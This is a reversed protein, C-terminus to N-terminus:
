RGFFSSKSPAQPAQPLPTGGPTGRQASGGSPPPTPEPPVQYTQAQPASSPLSTDRSPAAQAAERLQQEIFEKNLRLERLSPEFDNEWRTTPDAPDDPIDFDDAEEFTEHLQNLATLNAIRIQDRMQELLSPPRKLSSAPQMPNPDLIERGYLPHKKDTIHRLAHLDVKPYTGQSGAILDAKVQNDEAILKEKIEPTAKHRM